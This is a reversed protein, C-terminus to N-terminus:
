FGLHLIGLLPEILLLPQIGRLNSGLPQSGDLQLIIALLAVHLFPLVEM